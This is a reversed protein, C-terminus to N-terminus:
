VGFEAVFSPNLWSATWASSLGGAKSVVEGEGNRVQRPTVSFRLIRIRNKSNSNSSNSNNNKNNKHLFTMHLEANRDHAAHCHATVARAVVCRTVCCTAPLINSLMRSYATSFFDRVASTGKSNHSPAREHCLKSCCTSRCHKGM